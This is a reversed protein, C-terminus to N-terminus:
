QKKKQLKDALVNYKNPLNIITILVEDNFLYVKRNYVRINNANRHRLYLGDYFRKFSGATESHIVGNDLAKQAIKDTLNKSLGLREKTRQKAHDTAIAEM